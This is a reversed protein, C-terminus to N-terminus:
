CPYDAPQSCHPDSEMGGFQTLSITSQSNTPSISPERKGMNVDGIRDGSASYRAKLLGESTDRNSYRLREASAASNYAAAENRSLHNALSNEEQVLNNLCPVSRPVVKTYNHGNVSLSSPRRVGRLEEDTMDMLATPSLDISSQSRLQVKKMAPQGSAPDATQLKAIGVEAFGLQNESAQNHEVSAADTERYKPLTEEDSEHSSDSATSRDMNYNVSDKGAMPLSMPRVVTTGNLLCVETTVQRPELNSKGPNLEHQEQNSTSTKPVGSTIQAPNRLNETPYNSSDDSGSDHGGGKLLNRGFQYLGNMKGSLKDTRPKKLKFRKQKQPQPQRASTNPQPYASGNGPVNPQKPRAILPEAPNNHLQNHGHVYNHNHVNQNHTSNTNTDQNRPYRQHGLLDNQVLSSELNDAIAEFLDDTFNTNTGTALNRDGQGQAEDQVSKDMLRNGIVVLKDDSRKHTNREVTPNQGQHPQLPQNTRAYVLNSAKNSPPDMPPPLPDSPSATLMTEVTSGSVSVEGRPLRMGPPLDGINVMQVNGNPINGNPINSNRDSHDTTLPANTNEDSTQNRVISEPMGTILTAPNTPTM